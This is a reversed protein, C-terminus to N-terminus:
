LGQHTFFFALIDGHDFQFLGSLFIGHDLDNTIFINKAFFGNNFRIIVLIISEVFM